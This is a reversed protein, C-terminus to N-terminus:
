LAVLASILNYVKWGIFMAGIKKNKRSPAQKHMFSPFISTTPLSCIKLFFYKHFGLEM